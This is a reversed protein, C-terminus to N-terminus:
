DSLEMLLPLLSMLQQELLMNLAAGDPLAGAMLDETPTSTFRDASIEVADLAGDGSYDFSGLLASALLPAMPAAALQSMVGDSNLAWDEVLGTVFLSGARMARSLEARNLAGDGTLDLGEVIRAVCLDAPEAAACGRLAADLSLMVSTLEGFLLRSGAPLTDCRHYLTEQWIDRHTEPTVRGADVGDGYRDIAHDTLDLFVLEEAETMALYFQQGNTSRLSHWNGVTPADSIDIRDTYFDAENIVVEGGAGIVWSDGGSGCADYRWIGSWDTAQATSAACLILCATSLPRIM